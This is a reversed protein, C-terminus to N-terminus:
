FQFPFGISMFRAPLTKLPTAFTAFVEFKDVDGFEIELVLPKDKSEDSGVNALVYSPRDVGVEGEPGFM